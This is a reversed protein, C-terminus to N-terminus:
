TPACIPAFPRRQPTAVSLRNFLNELADPIHAMIADSIETLEVFATAPITGELAAANAAVQDANWGGAVVANVGAQDLIWRIALTSLPLGLDAAVWKM